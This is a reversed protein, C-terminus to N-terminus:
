EGQLDIRVRMLIKGLMNKGTGDKGCGWYWDIPSDEILEQDGTAILQDRLDKHQLFKAMVCEYMVEDKVADWDPRMTVKQGLNRADMGKETQQIAQIELEVNTKQSQYSAETTNWWRGFVFHRVKWFNGMYGHPVNVRYFKIAM